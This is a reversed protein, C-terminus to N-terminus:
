MAIGELVTAPTGSQDLPSRTKSAQKLRQRDEESEWPLNKPQVLSSSKQGSTNVWEEESQSNKRELRSLPSIVKLFSSSSSLATPTSTAPVLTPNPSTLIKLEPRNFGPPLVGLADDSAMSRLTNAMKSGWSGKKKNSDSSVDTQDVVQYEDDTTSQDGDVNTFKPQKSAITPSSTFPSPPHATLSRNIFHASPRGPATPAASDAAASSPLPRPLPERLETPSNVNMNVVSPRDTSVEQVSDEYTSSTLIKDDSNARM